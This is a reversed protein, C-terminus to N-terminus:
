EKYTASSSPTEKITVSSLWAYGNTKLLFKPSLVKFFHMALYEATPYEEVIYTKGFTTYGSWFNNSFLETQIDEYWDMFIGDKYIKDDYAMNIFKNDKFSLIIGHDCTADVNEMLLEKIFGYDLLMGTQSGEKVLEGALEVIITYRHGHLNKCKSEHLPVRHAADFEIQKTITNM